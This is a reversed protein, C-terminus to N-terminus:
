RKLWWWRTDWQMEDEYRQRRGAAAHPSMAGDAITVVRRHRGRVIQPLTCGALLRCVAGTCLNVVAWLHNWTCPTRRCCAAAPADAYHMVCSSLNLHRKMPYCPLFKAFVHWVQIISGGTQYIFNNQVPNLDFMLFIFWLYSKLGVDISKDQSISEYFYVGEMNTNSSTKSQCPRWFM